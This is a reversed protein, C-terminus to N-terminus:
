FDFDDFESKYRKNKKQINRRRRSAFSYNRLLAQLVFIILAALLVGGITLMVKKVDVFIVNKGDPASNASITVHEKTPEAGFEFSRVGPTTLLIHGMGVPIGNYSYSLDALINNESSSDYTLTSTLDDFDVDAPVTVNDTDDISFINQSSGFLDIDTEFFDSTEISYSTENEKINMRKFKDFGYEFLDRTDTYQYPAEDRMVACVLTMGNKEACTILTQHAVTTYGTKGGVIYEYDYTKGPLMKHHNAIGFEDPQTATAHIDIYTTSAIKRLQENEFFASAIICLDHATTYHEDNHLGNANTFHTNTCGLEAARKNMMDAFGEISGGVHEAVASAVENASALLICYLAEEMTISQGVDMGVNSSDREIGFVAEKSFTVMEDMSCNEAALLCTMIKTTSAPYQPSDMDKAYLIAGTSADMLCATKAAVVPGAPWSPLDNSEVHISQNAAIIDDKTVECLCIFSNSIILLASLLLAAAAKTSKKM